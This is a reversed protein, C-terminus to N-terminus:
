RTQWTDHSSQTHIMQEFAVVMVTGTGHLQTVIGLLLASPHISQFVDWGTVGQGLCLLAPAGAEVGYLQCHIRSEHDLLCQHDMHAALM